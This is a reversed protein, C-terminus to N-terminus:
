SRLYRAVRRRGGRVAQRMSRRARERMLRMVRGAHGKARKHAWGWEGEQIFFDDFSPHTRLAHDFVMRLHPTRMEDGSLHYEVEDSYRVVPLGGDPHEDFRWNLDDMLLWGDPRLLQAIFLVATTDLTLLKGGDLYAFDYEPGGASDNSQRVQDMLWWAYTSHPIRVMEIMDTVGCKAWLQECWSVIETGDDFQGSDITVVRGGGLAQLAGAMYAASTGYCTGVDLVVRPRHTLFHEWIRLGQGRTMWPVGAIREVLEEFRVRDRELV